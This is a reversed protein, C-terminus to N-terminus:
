STKAAAKKPTAKVADSSVEDESDTVVPAGSGTGKQRQAADIEARIEPDNHNLIPAGAAQPDRKASELARVKAAEVPDIHDLFESLDGENSELWDALVNWGALVDNEHQKRWQNVKAAKAEAISISRAVASRRIDEAYNTKTSDPVLMTARVGKDIEGM